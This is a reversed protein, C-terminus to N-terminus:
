TIKLNLGYFNLKGLVYVGTLNETIIKKPYKKLAEQLCQTSRKVEQDPLAATQAKIEKDYWSSPFMKPTPQFYLQPGDSELNGLSQPRCTLVSLTVFLLYFFNTKLM